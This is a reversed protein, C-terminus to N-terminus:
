YACAAMSLGPFASTPVAALAYRAMLNTVCGGRAHACRAPTPTHCCSM